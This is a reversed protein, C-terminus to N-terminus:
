AVAIGFPHARDVGLAGLALLKQERICLHKGGDLQVETVVAHGLGGLKGQHMLTSRGEPKGDLGVLAEGMDDVGPM